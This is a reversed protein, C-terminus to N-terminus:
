TLKNRVTLATILENKINYYHLHPAYNKIDTAKVKLTEQCDWKVIKTSRYGNELGTFWIPKKKASYGRKKLEDFIYQEYDPHVFFCDTLFMVLADPIISCIDVAMDFVHSIIHVRAFNYPRHRESLPTEWVKKGNVYRETVKEANFSGIAARRGKKYAEVKNYGQKHLKDGIIGLNHAAEWYCNNIDIAVCQLNDEISRQIVPTNFLVTEPIVDNEYVKKYEGSELRKELDHIALNCLHM